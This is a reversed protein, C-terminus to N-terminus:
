QRLSQLQMKALSLSFALLYCLCGKAYHIRGYKVNLFQIKVPWDVVSNAIDGTQVPISFTIM